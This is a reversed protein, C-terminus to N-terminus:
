FPTFILRSDKMEKCSNALLIIEEIHKIANVNSLQDKLRHLESLLNEMDRSSFVDYSSTSLEGLFDFNLEDQQLYEDNHTEFVKALQEGSASELIIKFM